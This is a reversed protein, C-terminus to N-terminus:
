EQKPMWRAAAGPGYIADFQAATNPNATLFQVARGSPAPWGGSPAPPPLTLQGKAARVRPPDAPKAPTAKEPTPAPTPASPPIEGQMAKEATGAETASELGSLESVTPKEGRTIKRYIGAALDGIEKDRVSEAIAFALVDQAHPGYMQEIEDVTARIQEEAAARAQKAALRRAAPDAAKTQAAVITADVSDIIAQVPAILAYAEKRTIPKQLAKPIGVSEQAALRAAVLAQMAQPSTADGMGEQAKKVLPSDEVAKAPDKLRLEEIKKARKEAADYVTQRDAFDKAGAKPELESLHSEIQDNSMTDMATVADFTDAAVKRKRLWEETAKEGLGSTVDQPSIDTAQGTERIQTIDNDVAIQLNYREVATAERVEKDRAAWEADAASQLSMRDETDIVSYYDPPTLDAIDNGGSEIIAAEEHRRKANIGKNHGSLGRVANAIQGLNGTQIASVVSDPLKGYNYAVSTLAAQASAPLGAWKDPGIDRVIGSQFEGIRRNLDREADARTIEMGPKVKLITGDELTITDSGYGVRYADDDYYPRARFGEKRRILGVAGGKGGELWASAAAPNDKIDQGIKLHAYKKAFDKRLKIAQGPSLLGSATLNDINARATAILSNATKPDIGPRTALNVADDIGQLAETVRKDKDIALAKNRISSSGQVIDDSTEVEFRERLKPNRIISASTTRHKEINTKYRGEWGQYDPNQDLEYQDAEQIRRSNWDARARALDIADDESKQRLALQRTSAANADAENAIVQGARAIAPSLNDRMQRPVASSRGTSYGLDDATPMRPM